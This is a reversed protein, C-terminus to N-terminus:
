QDNSQVVDDGEMRLVFECLANLVTNEVGIWKLAKYQPETCSMIDSCGYKKRCKQMVDVSKRTLESALTDRAEQPVDETVGDSQVFFAMTQVSLPSWGSEEIFCKDVNTQSEEDKCPRPDKLLQEKRM